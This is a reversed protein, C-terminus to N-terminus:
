SLDITIARSAIGSDRKPVEQWRVRLPTAKAALRLAEAARTRWGVRAREVTLTVSLPEGGPRVGYLEWYIGVRGGTAIRAAGLGYRAVDELSAAASDVARYVLVDSLALRGPGTRRGDDPRIGFRARAIGGRAATLEVSVLMPAWATRAVLPEVPRHEIRQRVVTMPTTEDSGLALAAESIGDDFLSDRPPEYAAVVVASDGRRFVSVQTQLDSFSAAYAPAYRAPPLRTTPKWDDPQADAPSAELLRDTPHFFFSPTLEHGVIGPAASGLASSPHDRTWWTPWGFRMLLEDVDSGWSLNYASRAQQELRSMTRRAFFETRVDNGPLSYLPQSLWWFRREFAVRESCPLRRYRKAANGDVFLSIDTWRCRQESSMGALASTFASDARAYDRALHLALGALADCWWATSWCDTAAAIADATRRAELLYRVRQGVIWEDGRVLRAADALTTLFRERARTIREPEAIEARSAGDEHWYCFRGIQLDCPGRPAGPGFPLNARRLSEFREQARRAARVTRVSDATVRSGVPRSIANATSSAQVPERVQASALAAILSTLIAPSQMM